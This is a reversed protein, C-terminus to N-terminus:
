NMEDYDYENMDYIKKKKKQVCGAGLIIENFEMVDPYLNRGDCEMELFDYDMEIKMNEKLFDEIDIM